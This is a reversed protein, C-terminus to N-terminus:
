LNFHVRTKPHRSRTWFPLRTRSSRNVIGSVVFCPAIGAINSLPMAGKVLGKLEDFKPTGIVLMPNRACSVIAAKNGPDILANGQTKVVLALTCDADVDKNVEKNDKGKFWDLNAKNPATDPEEEPVDQGLRKIASESIYEMSYNGAQDIALLLQHVQSSNSKCAIATAAKALVSAPNVSDGLSKAAM